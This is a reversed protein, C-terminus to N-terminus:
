HPLMLEVGYRGSAQILKEIEQKSPPPATTAGPPLPEGIELFMQELGAPAVLILMRVTSTGENKFSHISGIPLNAFKGPTLTEHRGDVTVSLEGEMVYFGEEERSHRHPPPGGGPPVIAEILAYKGETEKGTALMRYIDGVVGVYTGVGPTSIWPLRDLM